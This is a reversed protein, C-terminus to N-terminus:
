GAKRERPPLQPWQNGSFFERNRVDLNRHGRILKFCGPRQVAMLPPGVYSRIQHVIDLRLEHLVVIALCQILPGWCLVHEVTVLAQSFCGVISTQGLLM